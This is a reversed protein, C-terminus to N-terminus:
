AAKQVKMKKHLLDLLSLKDYKGFDSVHLYILTAQINVHGLWKQIQVISVGSELLHTAYTHRLTHVSVKKHIGAKRVIQQIAWQVGKQSYNRDFDGGSDLTINKSGRSNFLWRSPQHKRIYKVLQNKISKGMPVIRQRNGKGNRIHITMRDFDLDKVELMRVEKCRLGCEYLLSILIRHKEKMRVNLLQVMENISLVVPLKPEHKISPLVSHRRKIKLAKFMYRLGYVTFKFFSLSPTKSKQKLLYLYDDVEEKTLLDPRKNYHLSIAAIHRLYNKFTSASTGHNIMHKKLLELVKRFGPIQQSARVIISHQQFNIEYEQTM